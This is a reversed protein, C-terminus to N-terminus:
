MKLFISLVPIWNMLIAEAPIFIMNEFLYVTKQEKLVFKWCMKRSKHGVSNINYRITSIM